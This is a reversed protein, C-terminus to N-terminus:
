LEAVQTDLRGYWKELRGSMFLGKRALSDYLRRPLFCSNGGGSGRDDM